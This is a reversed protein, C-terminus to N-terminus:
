IQTAPPVDQDESIGFYQREALALAAFIQFM